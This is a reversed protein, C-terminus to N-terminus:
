NAPGISTTEGPVCLQDMSLKYLNTLDASSKLEGRVGRIVLDIDQEADVYLGSLVKADEDM